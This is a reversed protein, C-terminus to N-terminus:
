ERNWKICFFIFFSFYMFFSIFFICFFIFFYILFLFFFNFESLGSLARWHVSFFFCPPPYGGLFSPTKSLTEWNEHTKKVNKGYFLINKFFYKQKNEQINENSRMEWEVSEWKRMLLLEPINLIKKNKIWFLIIRLKKYNKLFYKSSFTLLFLSLTFLFIVWLFILM